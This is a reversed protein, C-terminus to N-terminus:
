KKLYDYTRQIVVNTLMCNALQNIKLRSIQIYMYVIFYINKTVNDSEFKLM